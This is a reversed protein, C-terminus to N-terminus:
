APCSAADAPLGGLYEAPRPLAYRPGSGRKSCALAVSPIATLSPSCAPNGMGFPQPIRGNTTENAWNVAFYGDDITEISEDVFTMAEAPSPLAIETMKKYQPYDPGLVWSTDPLWIARRRWCQGRGHPRGSLLQARPADPQAHDQPRQTRDPMPLGRCQPQLSVLARAKACSM